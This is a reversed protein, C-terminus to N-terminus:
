VGDPIGLLDAPVDVDHGIHSNSLERIQLRMARALSIHQAYSQPHGFATRGPFPLHLGLANTSQGHRDPAVVFPHTLMAACLDYVDSAALAPLDAMLVLAQSAGREGLVAIGWDLLKGLDGSLGRPDRLVRAGAARAVAAVDDGDTVVHVSEVLTCSHAAFLVRTFAHRALHTRAADDLQGRLRSKAAGFRKMPVLVHTSVVM